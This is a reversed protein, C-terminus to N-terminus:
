EVNDYLFNVVCNKVKVAESAPLGEFFEVPQKTARAAVTCVYDMMVEPNPNVYISPVEKQIQILDRAKLRKLGSMDISDYEQGEFKYPHRFKLQFFDETLEEEPEMEIVRIDGMDGM